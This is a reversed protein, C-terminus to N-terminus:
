VEHGMEELSQTILSKVMADDEFFIIRIKNGQPKPKILLQVHDICHSCFGKLVLLSEMVEELDYKELLMKQLDNVLEEKVQIKRGCKDCQASRVIETSICRRFLHKNLQRPEAPELMGSDILITICRYLSALHIHIRPNVM